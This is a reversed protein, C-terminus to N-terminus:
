AVMQVGIVDLQHLVRAGSVDHGGDLSQLLADLDNM